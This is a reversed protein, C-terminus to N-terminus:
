RMNWLFVVFIFVYAHIMFSSLKDLILSSSSSPHSIYGIMVRGGDNADVGDEGVVMPALVALM